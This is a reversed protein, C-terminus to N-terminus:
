YRACSCFIGYIYIYIYIYVNYKFPPILTINSNDHNSFGTFVKILCVSCQVATEIKNPRMPLACLSRWWQLDFWCGCYVSASDRQREREREIYIYIYIYIIKKCASMSFHNAWNTSSVIHQSYERELLNLYGGVFSPTKSIVSFSIQHQLEMELTMPFTFYKIPMVGLDVRIQPPLLM